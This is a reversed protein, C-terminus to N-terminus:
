DNRVPTASFLITKQKFDRITQSWTPAPEKHGEDFLILDIQEKLQGYAEKKKNKIKTLAQITTVFIKKEQKDVLNCVNRPFLKNVSKRINVELGFKKWLDVKIEKFLQDRIAESPSVILINNVGRIFGALVGIIITKGTGTAMKILAQDSCDSKIYDISKEIAKIQYDRLHPSLVSRNEWIAKTM